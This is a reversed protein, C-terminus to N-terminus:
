KTPYEEREGRWYERVKTIFKERLSAQLQAKNRAYQQKKSAANSPQHCHKRGIKRRVNKAMQEYVPVDKDFNRIM